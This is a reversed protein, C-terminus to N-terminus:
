DRWAPIMRFQSLLWLFPDTVRHPRVGSAVRNDHTPPGGLASVGFYRFRRYHESMITDIGAAGWDDLLGRVQEHVERGDDEAYAPYGAPPQRLPSSAPFGHALADMKSFVVAVPKDVIAGGDLLTRTIRNLVTIPQEADRPRAPLPTGPQAHLRAQVLQLPDLMLLVGDAGQLYRAVRDLREASAFHEGATDYFSLLTETVGRRPLIGRRPLSFQFVLPSVGQPGSPRTVEPLRAEQYLPWEYYRRFRQRTTDDAGVLTADLLSSVTHQLEHVLVTMYATKGAERPGVLALLRSPMKAFRPPLTSHCAPCVRIRTTGGCDPCVAQEARGRGGFVPPQPRRYGTREYQIGDLRAACVRGDPRPEGTCRFRIDREAFRDYCYPCIHPARRAAFPVRPAPAPSPATTGSTANEGLMAKLEDAKRAYRGGFRRLVQEAVHAFPLSEDQLLYDGEIGAGAIFARFDRNQGLRAGVLASVAELVRLAEPLSLGNCLEERVGPLFDYRVQDPATGPPATGVRRLLGGLMVEAIQSGRPVPAMAEHVLRVVPLSVPAAALCTALRFAGPSATAQFRAVREAPALASDDEDPPWPDPDGEDPDVLVAMGDVGGTGAGTLLRAWSGLWAPEIELVPVPFAGNEPAPAEFGSWRLRTNPLGPAGAHLRVPVPRAACREWLRQPLPQCIAVPGRRAWGALMRHADGSSWEPGTCDSFVLVAQRGHGDFVAGPRRAATGPSRPRVGLGSRAGQGGPQREMVWTRVDRFAGTEELLARLEGALQHWLEMSRHGDIVLALDLWRTRAPVLVPAWIREDAIRGVTAEEDLVTETRSPATRKLPRLARSLPLPRAIGPPLPARVPTASAPVPGADLEPPLHLAAPASLAASLAAPPTAPLAAPAGTRESPPAPERPERSNVPDPPPAPPAPEPERSRVTIHRALWLVDRLDDEGPDAGLDRLLQVLRPLTM